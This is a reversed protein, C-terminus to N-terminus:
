HKWKDFIGNWWDRISPRVTLTATIPDSVAGEGNVACISYDATAANTVHYTFVHYTEKPGWFSRETKTTYATIKEGNVTISEVDASAKVTLTATGGKRVNRSWKATFHEPEFTQEPAAFLARVQAVANEQDATTLPALSVSKGSEKYTIKLNTLSLIGSGNNAITVQQGDKAYKTIAYYMETATKVEQNNVSIKAVDGTGNPTKAGIQVSAISDLDGTLRFSIAQNKTLYVENNPGYNTYQGLKANVGGDVFVAKTIDATQGVIADHLKIYQPYGENDQAYTDNDKGMPDYVRIADLWFSYQGDGNKDAYSAYATTIVVKHTGYALDDVKIVPIQYLANNASNDVTWVGDKFVYGYYNNVYKTKELTETGDGGVAYVKVSIMGSNNDTLSIVDFGTGKFTFTATPWTTTKDNKEYMDSKVTVKHASGMSLKTSTEYATDHGYINKDGLASLAQNVNASKDTTNSDDNGVISWQANAAKGTGGTFSAFSDEYYVSTAPIVHFSFSKIENSNTFKINIPIAIENDLTQDLTYTVTKNVKDIVATGYTGHDRLCEQTEQKLSIWSITNLDTIGLDSLPITVPLGFDVVYTKTGTNKLGYHLTLTKGDTSIDASRYEYLGSTYNGAIGEIQTMDKSITQHVSSSNVVYADDPLYNANGVVNSNWPGNKGIVNGNADCLATFYTPKTGGQNYAMSIQITNPNIQRNATDDWYVINLNTEKVVPELYILVLKASNKAPWTISRDVSSGKGNVMPTTGSSKNWVEKEDYWKGGAATTKKDWTITDSSYWPNANTNTARWGNTVTIKSINYDSNNKPAIIGIDRNNWYNFITTSNAYMNGEAPSVTGDPYVVAVTLAVQGEQNYDTTDSTGFGWDKVYTEVEKTVTTKQLYYAVLQDTNVFYHWEGDATKYQWAGDLYRIHTIDTGEATRDVGNENTQKHESDLRVGKWFYVQTSGWYGVPTYALSDVAVGDETQVGTSEKSITQLNNSGGSESTVKANTIWHELTITDATLANAPLEKTVHIMYTVDGIKVSTTGVAVGRFTITSEDVPDTTQRTVPSGLPDSYTYSWKNGYFTGNNFYLETAWRSATTTTWGSSYSYHLYNSGNKLYSGDWTWQAASNVDSWNADSSLYQGNSNKIYYKEGTKVTTVKTETSEGNVKKCDVSVKAITQDYTGIQNRLDVDKVTETHTGNVAVTVDVTSPDTVTLTTTYTTKDDVTATVKATGTGVAKAVVSTGTIASREDANGSSQLEIVGAPDVSWTAEANGPVTLKTSGNLTLATGGSSKIGVEPLAKGFAAITAATKSIVSAETEAGPYDAWICFMSGAPNSITGGPFSTKDFGRAKNADCQADSKGLVWYYDGNTNILRFGKDALTKAPMPSYGSWGSSWYCVVIDTNFTGSDTNSNFYIGDNFAMATMGAAQIMNDVANVYDVYSSYKGSSQLNGFGMSGGTYIDNAYEDAGMNFYQCGKGAFYTIYKQLLAKTFAVATDNTVDITRVSGSYSCTTGTLSNAASLIADMHGPTNVCPIVGMGKTKAYTIITNMESETLENTTPSYAPADHTRNYALNGAQVAKKVADSDYTTGNVTLSMDDLLFRLGDNGVALQIYNFGAASANDIIQKISDVSYYKRGCDLFMINYEYSDKSNGTESAPLTFAAMSLLSLLMVLVLIMSLVKKTGTRKRAQNM